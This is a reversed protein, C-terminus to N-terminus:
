THDPSAFSLSGSIVHSIGSTIDFGSTRRAEPILEPTPRFAARAAVSDFGFPAKIPASEFWAGIKRQMAPLHWLPQCVAHGAETRHHAFRDDMRGPPHLPYGLFVLGDVDPVGAAAIALRNTRGDIQRWHGAHRPRDKQASCGRDRDHVGERAIGTVPRYPARGTIRPEM